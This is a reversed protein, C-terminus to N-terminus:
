ESVEQPTESMEEDGASFWLDYLTVVDFVLTRHEALFRFEEDNRKEKSMHAKIRGLELLYDTVNRKASEALGKVNSRGLKNLIGAVKDVEDLTAFEREKIKYEEKEDIKILWPKSCFNGVERERISDLSTGIVGQCYHVDVFCADQIEEGNSAKKMRVKGSECCEEAIRYAEAYPAHSHFIAIGACASENKKLAEMYVKVLQLADRANCVFNIEDGAYIVMRRKQGSKYDSDGGHVEDLYADIQNIPDEIYDQQINASFNRLASVCSEYSKKGETEKEVKAGMGNGDIYVIALLSEEGKQTVLKDLYKEGSKTCYEATDDMAYYKKYKMLSEKSLKEYVPTYEKGVLPMSTDYDVQVIPLTGWPTAPNKKVEHEAHRKYLRNRDANYDSFNLGEIATALIQLTGINKLVTKTFEYTVDKFVDIDEFLVFFNGGGDYVLEAVAGKKLHDEFNTKTLKSQDSNANEIDYRYIHQKYESIKKRQQGVKDVAVFFYDKFIDRIIASGGVIEKLHSSKFIFKQKSRVDYMALVYSNGNQAIFDKDSVDELIEFPAGNSDTKVIGMKSQSRELNRKQKHTLKRENLGNTSNRYGKKKAM